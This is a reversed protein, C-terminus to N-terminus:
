RKIAIKHQTITHNSNIRLIYIGDGLTSVDIKETADNKNILLRGNLDFLQVQNIMALGSINIENQAPNPYIDFSQFESGGISLNETCPAVLKAEVVYHEQGTSYTQVGLLLLLIFAAKKM